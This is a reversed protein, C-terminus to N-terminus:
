EQARTRILATRSKWPCKASHLGFANMESASRGNGRNGAFKYTFEPTTAAAVPILGYSTLLAILATVLSTKFSKKVTAANLNFKLM